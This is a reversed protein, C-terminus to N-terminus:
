ARLVGYAGSVTQIRRRIVRRPRLRRSGRHGAPCASLAIRRRLRVRRARGARRRDVRVLRGAPRRPLDGDARVGGARAARPRQHSRAGLRQPRPRRRGGRGARSRGTGADLRQAQRHLAALARRGRRGARRGPLRSPQRRPGEAAFFVRLPDESRTQSADRALTAREVAIALELGDSRASATAPLAIAVQRLRRQRTTAARISAARDDRVAAVLRLRHARRRARPRGRRRPRARQGRDHVRRTLPLFDNVPFQYSHADGKRFTRQATLALTPAGGGSLALWVEDEPPSAAGGTDSLSNCTLDIKIKRKALETELARLEFEKNTRDVSPGAPLGALEARVVPLRALIDSTTMDVAAQVGSPLTTIPLDVSEVATKERDSTTSRRTTGRRRGGAHLDRHARRVGAGRVAQAHRDGSADSQWGWEVSGLYTNAM